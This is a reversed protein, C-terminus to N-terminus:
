LSLMEFKTSFKPAVLISILLLMFDGGGNNIGMKFPHPRPLLDVTSVLYFHCEHIQENISLTYPSSNQSGLVNTMGACIQQLLKKLQYWKYCIQYLIQWNKIVPSQIFITLFGKLIWVLVQIQHCFRKVNPFKQPLQM